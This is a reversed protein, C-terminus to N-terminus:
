KLWARSIANLTESCASPFLSCTCARQMAVIAALLSSQQVELKGFLERFLKEQSDKLEGLLLGFAEKDRSRADDFESQWLKNDIECSIQYSHIM